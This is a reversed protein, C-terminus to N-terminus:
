EITGLPGGDRSNGLQSLVTTSTFSNLARVAGDVFLFPCVGPHWSGFGDASSYPAYDIQSKLPFRVDRAAHLDRFDNRNDYMGVEFAFTNCCGSPMRHPLAKEGFMLTNSTGDRIHAFSTRSSVVGNTRSIKLPSFTGAAVVDMRQQDTTGAVWAQGDNSTIARWYNHTGGNPNANHDYWITAAYDTVPGNMAYTLTTIIRPRSRTPCVYTDVAAAAGQLITMDQVRDTLTLRDYVTGKELMPLLLGCWNLKHHGLSLPVLGNHIDHFTHVAVGMQKLNNTCVIRRGAERASQIAPLLLAVLVGIIAIVALLEILTFARHDSTHSSVDIGSGHTAAPCRGVVLRDRGVRSPGILLPLSTAPTM